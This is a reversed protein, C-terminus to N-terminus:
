YHQIFIEERRGPISDAVQSTDLFSNFSLSPLLQNESIVDPHKEYNLKFIFLPQSHYPFQLGPTHSSSFAMFPSSLTQHAMEKWQLPFM